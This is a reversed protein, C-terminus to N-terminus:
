WLADRHGKGPFPGAAPTPSTGRPMSVHLLLTFVFLQFGAIM